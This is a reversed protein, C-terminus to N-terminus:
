YCFCSILSFGLIAFPIHINISSVDSNGLSCNEVCLFCVIRQGLLVIIRVHYGREV